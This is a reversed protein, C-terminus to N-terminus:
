ATPKPKAPRAATARARRTPKPAPTASARRRTASKAATAAATAGAPKAPKTPSARKMAAPAKAAAAHKAPPAKAAAAPKSATVSRKPSKAASGGATDRITSVISAMRAAADAAQRDRKAAEQRAKASQRLRKAETARVADLQKGLKQIKRRAKKPVPAGPRKSATVLDDVVGIVDTPLASRRGGTAKQTTARRKDAMGVEMTMFRTM